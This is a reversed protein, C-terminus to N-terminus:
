QVYLLAACAQEWTFGLNTLDEMSNNHRNDIYDAVTTGEPVEFFTKFEEEDLDYWDIKSYMYHHDGLIECINSDLESVNLIERIGQLTDTDNM